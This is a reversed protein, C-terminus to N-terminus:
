AIETTEDNEKPEPKNNQILYKDTRSTPVPGVFILTGRPPGYFVEEPDVQYRRKFAAAAEKKTTHKSNYARYTHNPDPRAEEGPPIWKNKKRM